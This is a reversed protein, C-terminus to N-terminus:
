QPGSSFRFAESYEVLHGMFQSSREPQHSSSNRSRLSKWLNNGRIRWTSRKGVERLYTEQDTSLILGHELANGRYIQSTRQATREERTSQETYELQRPRGTNGHRRALDSWDCRVRQSAIPQLGSPEETWPIKWALISSHTAMGEELPDGEGLFQIRTEQMAPLRKVTQAVLSARKGGCGSSWWTM